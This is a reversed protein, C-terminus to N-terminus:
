PLIKELGYLKVLEGLGAPVGTVALKKGAAAARRKAHLMLSVLTSDIRKVASMDIAFDGAGLAADLEKKVSMANEFTISEQTIKM